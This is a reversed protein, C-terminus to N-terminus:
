KTACWLVLVYDLSLCTIFISETTLQVVFIAFHNLLVFVAQEVNHVKM